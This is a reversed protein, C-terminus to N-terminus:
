KTTGNDVEKIEYCKKIQERGVTVEICTPNKFEQIIQTDTKVVSVISGVTICFIIVFLLLVDM